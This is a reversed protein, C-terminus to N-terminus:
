VGSSIHGWIRHIRPGLNKKGSKIERAGSMTCTMKIARRSHWLIGNVARDEETEVIRSARVMRKVFTLM